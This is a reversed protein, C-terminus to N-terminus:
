SESKFFIVAIAIVYASGLLTLIYFIEYLLNALPSM